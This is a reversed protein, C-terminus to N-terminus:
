AAALLRDALQQIAAVSPADPWHDILAVGDQDAEVVAGDFPITAAIDLAHRDAFERVSEADRATRIKNAVM